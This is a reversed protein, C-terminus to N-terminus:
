PSVSGNPNNDQPFVRSAAGSTLTVNTSLQVRVPKGAAIAADTPFIWQGERLADLLKLAGQYAPAMQNADIASFGRRGVLLGFALDCNLRILFAQSVGTLTNLDAISYRGGTTTAAEIMGAGDDLMAQLVDSKPLGSAATLTNDDNILAGLRKVDYRLMMDDPTAFSM